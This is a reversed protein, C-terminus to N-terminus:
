SSKEEDKEKDKEGTKKGTQFAKSAAAAVGMIDTIGGQAGAFVVDTDKFAARTTESAVALEGGPQTAIKAIEAMGKARGTLLNEENDAAAKGRSRDAHATGMGEEERKKREGKATIVTTDAEFSAAARKAMQTSVRHGLNVVKLHVQTITLGMGEAKKRVRDDLKANIQAISRIVGAPTRESYDESLSSDGMPRLIEKAKEITGARVLFVIPETIVGIAYWETGLTMQSDLGRVEGPDPDRTPIRLARVMGPPETPLPTQEDGWFILDSPGPAELQFIQQAGKIKNLRLLGWPLFYPGPKAKRVIRGYFEIVGFEDLGVNQNIISLLLHTGVLILVGPGAQFELPGLQLLMVGWILPSLSLAVVYCIITSIVITWYLGRSFEVDPLPITKEDPEHEITSVVVTTPDAPDPAPSDQQGSTDQDQDAM